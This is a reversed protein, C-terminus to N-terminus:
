AEEISHANVGVYIRGQWENIELEGTVVVCDGKKFSLWHARAEESLTDAWCTIDLYMVVEGRGPKLVALRSKLPHKGTRTVQETVDLKLWGSLVLWNVQGLKEAESIPLASNM